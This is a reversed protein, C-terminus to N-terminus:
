GTQRRVLLERALMIGAISKADDLQGLLGAVPELPLERAEIFEERDLEVGTVTLEEALYLHMIEDCFGPTSYFTALHTLSGAELGLEERLERRACAEPEEGTKLKGAPIELLRKGIADRYQSVLRVKGDSDLPVIAAAGPHEIVERLAQEGNPLEIEDLRLRIIRGSYVLKSSLRRNSM